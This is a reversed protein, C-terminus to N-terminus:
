KRGPIYKDKEKKLHLHKQAAPYIKLYLYISHSIVWFSFLIVLLLFLRMSLIPISQYRMLLFFFGFMSLYTLRSPLKRFLKKFAVDKRGKFYTKLAFRAILLILFYITLPLYYSFTSGPNLGFLHSPSLLNLM